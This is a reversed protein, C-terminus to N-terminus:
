ETKRSLTRFTQMGKEKNFLSLRDLIQLQLYYASLIDMDFHHGVAYEEIARWRYLLLKKEVELPNGERVLAQPFSPKTEQRNRRAKRWEALEGAFQKEFAGYTRALGSVPKLPDTEGLRVGRLMSFDAPSMWKEAEGLFNSITIGPVRDFFLMPLQAVLYYHSSM